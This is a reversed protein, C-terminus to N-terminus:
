DMLLRKMVEESSIGNCELIAMPLVFEDCTEIDCKLTRTQEVQEGKVDIGRDIALIDCEWKGKNENWIAKATVTMSNEM